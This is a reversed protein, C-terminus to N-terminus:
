SQEALVEPANRALQAALHRAVLPAAYKAGVMFRMLPGFSNQAPPGVFYLGPATSEFRGSLVPMNAHTRIAAILSPSLFGLRRLDVAYGTAAVVHDTLLVDRNGESDRLSLKVRGNVSEAQEIEKRLVADVGAEFRARMHWASSPGLHRRVITLRADDPLYRFVGPFNECLWSRLSPGLGSSPHRIRKWLSRPGRTPQSGFSIRTGRHLLRTKAGAEYLLTALDVASAGGGVVTVDKGAFQDLEGHESGHSMLDRPLERLQPPIFAFHAIGVAAVVIPSRLVEGDDLRLTFQNDVHDLSVVTRDDLDPVFRRQFDSAYANFLELSVPLETPHYDLSHSSCYHALTGKGELDILNSAFGDSKLDMGKPMHSTWTDLPKGFIRYPVNLQRLHAAISLGYPGAGIIVIPVSM